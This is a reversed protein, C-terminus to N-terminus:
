VVLSQVEDAVPTGINNKQCADMWLAMVNRLTTVSGNFVVTKNMCQEIAAFGPNFVIERPGQM